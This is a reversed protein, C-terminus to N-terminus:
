EVRVGLQTDNVDTVTWPSSTAPNTEYMQQQYQAGTGLAVATGAYDAGAIRLVPEIERTASNDKDALIVTQVGLVEGAPYPLPTMVYTDEDGPTPSAVYTIFQEYESDVYTYNDTHNGASNELDSFDGNGDPRTAVVRVDSLLTTGNALYVDDIAFSYSNTNGTLAISDFTTKTGGNKTDIGTVHIVSLGNLNVNVSGAGTSLVATLEIFNWVNQAIFTDSSGVEPLGPGAYVHLQGAPGVSIAVHTTTTEDSTLYAFETSGSGENWKFAFGLTFETSEDAPPVQRHLSSSFVVIGSLSIHLANPGTRGTEFGTTTGWGDISTDVIWGKLALERVDDVTDFSEVYILSM